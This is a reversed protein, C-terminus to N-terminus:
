PARSRREALPAQPLAPQNYIRATETKCIECVYVVKGASKSPGGAVVAKVGMQVRCGPCIVTPWKIKQV